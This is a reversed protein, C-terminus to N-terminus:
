LGNCFRRVFIDLDDKASLLEPDLNVNKLSMAIVVLGSVVMYAVLLNKQQVVDDAGLRMGCNLTVVNLQGVIQM